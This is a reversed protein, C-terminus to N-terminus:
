SPYTDVFERLPLSSCDQAGRGCIARMSRQMEKELKCLWEEINGEAKVGELLTIREEDPDMISIIEGILRRDTEDFAVRNIADFLKEFDDQV